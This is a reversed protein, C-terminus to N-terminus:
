ARGAPETTAVASRARERRAPLSAILRQSYPHRPNNLVDATAGSEVICGRQMVHVQGAIGGVVAINHTVLLLSMGHEVSLRRLLQLVQAQVTVDLATTPEDAILLGPSNLLARAIMIRQKMGGSLMHPYANLIGESDPLQVDRLCQLIRARAAARSWDGHARIARDLQWGIKFSPHLSDGPNQFVM